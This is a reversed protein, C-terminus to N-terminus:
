ITSIEPPLRRIQACYRPSPSVPNALSHLTGAPYSINKAQKSGKFFSSFLILKTSFPKCTSIHNIYSTSYM